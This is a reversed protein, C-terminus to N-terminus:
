FISRVLMLFGVLLMPLGVIAGVVTLTLILGVLMLVCGLIGAVLRGTMEIILALFKWLAVFPWWLWFIEKKEKPERPIATTVVV